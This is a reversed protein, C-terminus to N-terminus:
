NSLDFNIYGVAQWVERIDHAPVQFPKYYTNDSILMLSNNKKLENMVRKYVIGNNETVLVCRTENKVKTWDEIYKCIVYSKDPVPLMSDGKIQFVRHTQDKKIEAFPLDFRELHEIYEADGYGNLYGAAAKAPVLTIKENGTQESIVIPLIRVDNKKEAALAQQKSLDQQILAEVTVGFYKGMKVLVEAKPEARGEEYSGIIPRNLGLAGALQTQTLKHQSRLYKLNDKLYSM